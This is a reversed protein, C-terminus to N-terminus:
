IIFCPIVNFFFSNYNCFVLFYYYSDIFIVKSVMELFKKGIYVIIRIFFIKRMNWRYFVDYLSGIVM